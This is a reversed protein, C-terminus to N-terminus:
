ERQRLVLQLQIRIQFLIRTPILLYYVTYILLTNHLLYIYILEQKGTCQRSTQKQSGAVLFLLKRCTHGFLLKDIGNLQFHSGFQRQSNAHVGRNHILNRRLIGSIFFYQPNRRVLLHGSNRLITCDRCKGLTLSDNRYFRYYTKSNGINRLLRNCHINYRFYYFNSIDQQRIFIILAIQKCRKIRTVFLFQSIRHQRLIM